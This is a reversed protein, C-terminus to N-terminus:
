YLTIVFLLPALTIDGQLVGVEINVHDTDGDFSRVTSKTNDYLMM